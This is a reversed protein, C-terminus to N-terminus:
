AQNSLDKQLQRAEAVIDLAQNSLDQLECLETREEESNLTLEKGDATQFRETCSSMRVFDVVLAEKEPDTLDKNKVEDPNTQLAGQTFGSYKCLLRVCAGKEKADTWMKSLADSEGKKAYLELKAADSKDKCSGADNAPLLLAQGGCLMEHKMCELVHRVDFKRLRMYECHSIAAYNKSTQAAVKDGVDLRNQTPSSQQLSPSQKFWEIDYHMAQRLTKLGYIPSYEVNQFSLADDSEGDVFAAFGVRSCQTLKGTWGVGRFASYFTMYTGMTAHMAAFTVAGTMTGALAGLIHGPIIRVGHWFNKEDGAVLVKTVGGAVVGAGIGAMFGSAIGAAQGKLAGGIADLPGVLIAKSKNVWSKSREIFFSKLHVDDGKAMKKADPVCIACMDACGMTNFALMQQSAALFATEMLKKNEEESLPSDQSVLVTAKIEKAKADEIEQVRAAMTAMELELNGATTWSDPYEKAKPYNVGHTRILSVGARNAHTGAFAGACLAVILALAAM